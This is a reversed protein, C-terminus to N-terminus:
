EPARNEARCGVAPGMRRLTQACGIVEGDIPSQVAHRKIAVEAAAVEAEAVKAEFGAIVKERNAKKIALTSETVKLELELLQTKPISGPVNKNADVNRMYTAKAVKESEIAYTINVEDAAKEAAAKQKAQAM